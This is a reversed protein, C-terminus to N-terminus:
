RSHEEEVHEVQRIGEQYEHRLQFTVKESSGQIEISFSCMNGLQEKGVHNCSEANHKRSERRRWGFGQLKM